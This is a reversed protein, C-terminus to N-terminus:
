SVPRKFIFLNNLGLQFKKRTMLSLGQSGFISPTEEVKFGYHQELSMGDILRMVKLVALIHDVTPSPVTIALLGGPKLYDKCSRALNAQANSPVHELVALMTIVDFQIASPLADPFFGKYFSVNPLGPLLSRDLDPDVGVSEGLSPIMRFLAGDATGIDLVSDGPRIFKGAKRIRYRQIFRDAATM